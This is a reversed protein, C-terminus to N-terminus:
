TTTTGTEGTGAELALTVGQDMRRLERAIREIDADIGSADYTVVEAQIKTPADLGLVPLKVLMLVTVPM